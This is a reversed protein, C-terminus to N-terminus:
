ASAGRAEWEPRLMSMIALDARRGTTAIYAQRLVGEFVFGAREYVHRARDNDTVVDLWLRHVATERFAWDVVAALFPAGFGTGPQVSVIRYLCVNGNREDLDGLIAFGEPERRDRGGILYAMASGHIGSLHREEDWHSVFPSAEPLRESAMVFAVDRRTARRLHIGSPAM